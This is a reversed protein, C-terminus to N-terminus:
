QRQLSELKARRPWITNSYSWGRFFSVSSNPGCVLTPQSSWLTRCALLATDMGQVMGQGMRRRGRDELSDGTREQGEMEEKCPPVLATLLPATVLEEAQEASSAGHQARGARVGHTGDSPPSTPIGGQPPPQLASRHCRRRRGWIAQSYRDRSTISRQIRLSDECQGCIGGQTGTTDSQERVDTGLLPTGPTGPPEPSTGATGPATSTPVAPSM